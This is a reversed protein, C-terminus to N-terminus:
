FEHRFLSLINHKSTINEKTHTVLDTTEKDLKKSIRKVESISKKIAQIESSNKISDEKIVKHTGDITTQFGTFGKTIAKEVTKQLKLIQQKQNEEQDKERAIKERELDKVLGEKEQLLADIKSKANRLEITQEELKNMQRKYDRELVENIKILKSPDKRDKSEEVKESKPM